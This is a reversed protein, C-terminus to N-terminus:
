ENIHVPIAKDESKRTAIEANHIKYNEKTVYLERKDFIFKGFRRVTKFGLKQERNLIANILKPLCGSSWELIISRSFLFGM